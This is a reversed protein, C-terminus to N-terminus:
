HRPRALLTAILGAVVGWFASGIGFASAGSLTVLFTLAAADRHAEEKFAAVLGSAITGLLALGAIAVVLEHPFALLLGVVGEQVLERHEIRSGAFGRALGAIAPLFAEVLQRCAVADGAEAAIM